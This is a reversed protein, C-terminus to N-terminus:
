SGVLHGASGSPMAQGEGEHGVCEKWPPGPQNGLRPLQDVSGHSRPVENLKQDRNSKRQSQLSFQGKGTRHVSSLKGFKSNYETYYKLLMM